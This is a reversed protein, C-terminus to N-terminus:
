SLQHTLKEMERKPSANEYLIKYVMDSIPMHAKYKRNIEYISRSAYYGEAIMNMDLIANKISYGKGIMTGFTRNRSFQSYVTVMLDGLYASDKIDRSIPHVADVFRKIEQISNAVMAAQFNDGYRLGHAIGAGIAIINKIVSAYETGWIDDSVSTFIYESQILQAFNSAKEEDLSAVTLYSLKELAVEEAHCPGAIVGMKELPVNFYKNLYEVVLYNERSVIGKIGSLIYKESIDIPTGSLIQPLFASPIALVLIDSAKIIENINSFFHIRDTEFEASQLYRPNNGQKKFQKITDEKRFFWNIEKVNELLMKAIATAWSGSGIVAVKDRKINM